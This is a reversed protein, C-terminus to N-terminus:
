GLICFSENFVGRVSDITSVRPAAMKSSGNEFGHEVEVDGVVGEAPFCGDMLKQLINTKEKAVEWLASTAISNFLDFVHFKRAKM